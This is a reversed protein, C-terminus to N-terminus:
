PCHFTASFDIVSIIGLWYNFAICFHMHVLSHLDSNDEQTRRRGRRQYKGLMTKAYQTVWSTLSCSSAIEDFHSKNRRQMKLFCSLHSEPLHVSRFHANQVLGKVVNYSNETKALHGSWKKWVSRGLCAPSPGRRIYEVFCKHSFFVYLCLFIYCWWSLMSKFELNVNLLILM